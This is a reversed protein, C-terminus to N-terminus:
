KKSFVYDKLEYDYDWREESLLIDFHRYDANLDLADINLALM